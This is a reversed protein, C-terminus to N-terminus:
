LNIRSVFRPDKFSWITVKQKFYYKIKMVLIKM